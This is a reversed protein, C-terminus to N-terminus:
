GHFKKDSGFKKLYNNVSSQIASNPNLCLNLNDLLERTFDGIRKGGAGDGFPDHKNINNWLGINNESKNEQKLLIINEILLDLDDFILQNYFQQYLKKEYKRLNTDDYIAARSKRNNIVCQILTGPIFAGMSITIDAYQSYHAAIENLNDILICKKAKIFNQIKPYIKTLPTLNKKRKSKIILGIDDNLDLINLFKNFFLEVKKSHMLQWGCKDNKSHSSDILMIFFKIGKRKMMNIKTKFHDNKYADKSPYPDGSILIQNIPNNTQKIRSASDQGWTFFINNPYFGIFDGPLNTPLSRIKGISCGENLELAIQKIINSSAMEESNFHVKVNNSKFFNFWFQIKSILIIVEDKSWIDDKKLQDIDKIRNKIESLIKLPKLYEFKKHDIFNIGSIKLNQIQDKKSGFKKFNNIHEAYTIVENKKFLNKEYWFFDNRKEFSCGELFNVAIRNGIIKKEKLFFSFYKTVNYFLSVNKWFFNIVINKFNIIKKKKVFKFKKLRKHNSIYDVFPFYTEIIQTEDNILDHEKLIIDSSIELASEYFSKKFYIEILKNNFNNELLKYVQSTKFKTFCIESILQQLPYINYGLLKGDNDRKDLLSM